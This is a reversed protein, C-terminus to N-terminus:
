SFGQAQQGGAERCSILGLSFMQYGERAELCMYILTYECAHVYVVCM